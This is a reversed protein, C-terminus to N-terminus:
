CYDAILQIYIISHLIVERRLQIYIISHPIVKNRAVLSRRVMRSYRMQLAGERVSTSHCSGIRIADSVALHFGRPKRAAEASQMLLLVLVRCSLRGDGAHSAM